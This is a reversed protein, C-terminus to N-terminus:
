NANANAVRTAAKYSHGMRACEGEIEVNPEIGFVSSSLVQPRLLPVQV